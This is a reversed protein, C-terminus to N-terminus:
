AKVELIELQMVTSISIARQKALNAKEGEFLEDVTASFLKNWERFHDATLPFLKSLHKHIKLPNGMYGGTYFLANEWFRYMVPLHHEWNVQVVETFIYGIVPNMKVKQYFTNVLLEIDKGTELDKKM